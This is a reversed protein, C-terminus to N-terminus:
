APPRDWGRGCVHAVGVYERRHFQDVSKVLWVNADHRHAVPKGHASASGGIGALGIKVELRDYWAVEASKWDNFGISVLKDGFHTAVVDEDRLNALCHFNSASLQLCMEIAFVSKASVVNILTDPM